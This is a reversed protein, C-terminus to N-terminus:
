SSADTIPFACHCGFEGAAPDGDGAHQDASTERGRSSRLSSAVNSLPQSQVWAKWAAMGQQEKARRDAESLANWAAWKPSTRSGLFVALFTDNTNM